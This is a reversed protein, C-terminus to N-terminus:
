YSLDARYQLVLNEGGVQMEEADEFIANRQRESLDAFPGPEDLEAWSSHRTVSFWTNTNGGAIIRFFSVGTEGGDRLGPLLRDRIWEEYDDNMFSGVERIRLLILNEEFGDPPPIVLDDHVRLIWVTRHEITDTIRAVWSGWASGTVPGDPPDDFYAFNDRPQVVHFTGTRGAQVQWISRGTMGAARGAEAYQRQLEVFEAIRGTKVKVEAVHLLGGGDQASANLPLLAMITVIVLTVSMTIFRGLM